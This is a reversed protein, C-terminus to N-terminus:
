MYPPKGKRAPPKVAATVALATVPFAEAGLLHVNLRLFFAVAAFGLLRPWRGPGRAAQLVWAAALLSLVSILTGWHHIEVGLPASLRSLTGLLLAYGPASTGFVREGPNYVLGEGQRWNKAYRYTIYNDDYSYGWFGYAAAAAVLLVALWVFRATKRDPSTEMAM